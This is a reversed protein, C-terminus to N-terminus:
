PDEVEPAGQHANTSHIGQLFPQRLTFDPSGPLLIAGVGM